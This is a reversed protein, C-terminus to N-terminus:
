KNKLVYEVLKEAIQILYETNMLGDSGTSKIAQEIAWTRLQQDKNLDFQFTKNELAKIRKIYPTFDVPEHSDKELKQIRGLIEFENM